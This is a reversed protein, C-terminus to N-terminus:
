LRLRPVPILGHSTEVNGSGVEVPLSFVEVDLGFLGLDELLAATGLVDFITDPSGLEHLHVDATEPTKHV